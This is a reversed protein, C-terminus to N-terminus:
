NRKDLIGVPESKTAQEESMKDNIRELFRNLWRGSIILALWGVFLGALVDSVYHYRGYVTSFCLLALYVFLFFRIKKFEAFLSAIAVFAVACHSSPMAGGYFGGYGVIKEALPTFFPGIIPLYYYDSLFFRPGVVPYIIFILYSAYFALSASLTFKELSIWRGRALLILAAAPVTLYYSVYFFNISENIWVAMYRQLMFAPDAGLITNELTVMQADFPIKFITFIQIGAAQYLFTFLFVPYTLRLARWFSGAESFPYASIIVAMGAAALYFLITFSWGPRDTGFLLIISIQAAIYGLLAIDLPRLRIRFSNM